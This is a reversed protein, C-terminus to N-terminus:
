PASLLSKSYNNPFDALMGIFNCIRIHFFNSCCPGEPSNLCLNPEDWSYFKSKSRLHTGAAPTWMLCFFFGYLIWDPEVPKFNRLLTMQFLSLNSKIKLAPFSLREFNFLMILYHQQWMIICNLSGKLRGNSAGKWLGKRLFFFFFTIALSLIAIIKGLVFGLTKQSASAVLGQIGQIELLLQLYRASQLVCGSGM